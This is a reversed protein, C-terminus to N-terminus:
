SDAAIPVPTSRLGGFTSRWHCLPFAWEVAMVPSMPSQSLQSVCSKELRTMNPYTITECRRPKPIATCLPGRREYRTSHSTESAQLQTLATRETAEAREAQGVKTGATQIAQKLGALQAALNEHALDAKHLAILCLTDHHM